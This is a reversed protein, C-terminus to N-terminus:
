CFHELVDHITIVEKLVFDDDVVPVLTIGRERLLQLAANMDSKNLYMFSPRIVKGVPSHWSINELFLRIIDGESIVGVVVSQGSTERIVIACRTLNHAITKLVEKVPQETTVVYKDLKNEM